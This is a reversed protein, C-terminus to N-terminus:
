KFYLFKNKKYNLMNTFINETSFLKSQHYCESPRKLIGIEQLIIRSNKQFFLQSIQECINTIAQDKSVDQLMIINPKLIDIGKFYSVYNASGLPGYIFESGSFEKRSKRRKIVEMKDKPLSLLLIFDPHIYQGQNISENIINICNIDNVLQRYYIISFILRDIFIISPKNKNITSLLHRLYRIRKRELKIFFKACKDSDTFSKSLMPPSNIHGNAFDVYEKVFYTDYDKKLKNILQNILYTKGSLSPGEIGILLHQTPLSPDNVRQLLAVSTIVPLCLGIIIFVIYYVSKQRIRMFEGKM